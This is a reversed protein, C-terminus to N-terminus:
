RSMSGGFSAIINMQNGNWILQHHVRHLVWLQHRDVTLRFQQALLFCEDVLISHVYLFPASGSIIRGISFSAIRWGHPPPLWTTITVYTFRVAAIRVPTIAASTGVASVQVLILVFMKFRFSSPASTKITFTIIFVILLNTNVIWKDCQFLVSDLILIAHLNM